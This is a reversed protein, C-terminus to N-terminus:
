SGGELSEITNLKIKQKTNTDSWGAASYAETGAAPVYVFFFTNTKGSSVANNVLVPPSLKRCIIAMTGITEPYFGYQDIHGLASDSGIEIYDVLSGRFANAGISGVNDPISLSGSSSRASVVTNGDLLLQGDCAASFKGSGTVTFRINSCSAFPSNSFNTVDTITEVTSPMTLSILNTCSKFVKNNIKTLTDPLKISTINTNSLFLETALETPGNPLTVGGTVKGVAFINNGEILIKGSDDTRLNGEGSLIFSEIVSNSTPFAKNKVDVSAPMAIIEITTCSKFAEENLTILSPMSVTGALKSCSSFAQKGITEVSDLGSIKTIGTCGSFAAEGIIKVKGGLKVSTIGTLSKFASAGIYELTKPMELDGTIKTCSAFASDNIKKLAAPMNIVALKTCASFMEKSITELRDSLTVTELSTCGYFAKDGFGAAPVDATKLGTAQWFAGEGIYEITQPTKISTLAKCNYFAEKGITKVTNPITISVLKECSRFANEGISIVPADPSIEMSILKKANNFMKDNIRTLTDPLKVTTISGANREFLGDAILAVGSPIVVNIDPGFTMPYVSLIKGNNSLLMKGSSDASYGGPGRAAFVINPCNDFADTAIGQITGPFSVQAMTGCDMFTKEGIYKLTGPLTIETLRDKNDCAAAPPLLREGHCGSLDVATFKGGLAEFFPQVSNTGTGFDEVNIGSLSVRYPNLPSNAPKSALYAKLYELSTFVAETRGTVRPFNKEGLRNIAKVQINYSKQDTLNEILISTLPPLADLKEAPVGAAGDPDCWVEYSEAGFVETWSVILQTYNIGPIAIPNKVTPGMGFADLRTVTVTYIKHNGGDAPIVEILIINDGEALSVTNGGDEAARTLYNKSTGAGTNSIVVSGGNAALTITVTDVTNGVYSVYEMIDPSFDPTLMGFDLELYTILAGGSPTETDVQM